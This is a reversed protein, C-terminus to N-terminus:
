RDPQPGYRTVIRVDACRLPDVVLRRPAAHVRAEGILGEDLRIELLFALAEGVERGPGIGLHDMVAKGDLEPRIKAMEEAEALEDIRQELDDM